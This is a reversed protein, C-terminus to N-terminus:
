ASRSSGAAPLERSGTGQRRVPQRPQVNDAAAACTASPVAVATGALALGAAVAALALLAATVAPPAHLNM